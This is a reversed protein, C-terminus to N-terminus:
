QSSICSAKGITSSCHACCATCDRTHAAAPINQRQMVANPQRRTPHSARAVMSSFTTIANVSCPPSSLLLIVTSTLLAYLTHLKSTEDLRSSQYLTALAVLYTHYLMSWAKPVLRKALGRVGHSHITPVPFIAYGQAEHWEDTHLRTHSPDKDALRLILPWCRRKLSNRIGRRGGPCYLGLSYRWSAFDNPDPFIRSGRYSTM